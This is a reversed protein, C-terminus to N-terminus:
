QTSKVLTLLEVPGMLTGDVTGAQSAQGPLNTFPNDTLRVDNCGYDDIVVGTLDGEHAYSILFRSGLDATCGDTQMPQLGDLAIAFTKLADGSLQRPKGRRVWEYWAGNAGAPAIDTPVYECVWAEQPEWMSPTEEAPDGTGLGYTDQPATPLADPCFQGQQDALEAMPQTPPAVAREDDGCATVFLGLSLLGATPLVTAFSPMVYSGHPPRSASLTILRRNEANPELRGLAALCVACLPKLPRKLSAAAPHAPRGNLGMLPRIRLSIASTAATGNVATMGPVEDTAM